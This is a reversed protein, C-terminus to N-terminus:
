FKALNWMLMISTLFQLFPGAQADAAMFAYDGVVLLNVAFSRSNYATGRNRFAPHIWM